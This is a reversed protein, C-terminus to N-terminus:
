RDHMVIISLTVTYKHAHRDIGVCYKSTQRGMGVNYKNTHRGNGKLQGGEKKEICSMTIDIVVMGTERWRSGGERRTVCMMGAIGWHRSIARAVLCLYICYIYMCRYLIKIVITNNHHQNLLKKKIEIAVDGRVEQGGQVERDVEGQELNHSSGGQHHHLVVAVAVIQDKDWTVEGEGQGEQEGDRLMRGETRQQCHPPTQHVEVGEGLDSEGEVGKVGEGLVM